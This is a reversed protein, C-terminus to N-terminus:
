KLFNYLLTKSLHTDLLCQIEDTGQILKVMDVENELNAKELFPVRELVSRFYQNSKNISFIVYIIDM